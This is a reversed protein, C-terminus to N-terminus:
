FLDDLENLDDNDNHENKKEEKKEAKKEEPKKPGKDDAKGIDFFSSELMDEEFLEPVPEKEIVESLADEKIVTVEGNNSATNESPQRHVKPIVEPLIFQNSPQRM